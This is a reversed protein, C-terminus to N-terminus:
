ELMSQQYCLHFLLSTSMEDLVGRMGAIQLDRAGLLQM